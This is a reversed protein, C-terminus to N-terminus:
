KKFLRGTIFDEEFARLFAQTEESRKYYLSEYYKKM